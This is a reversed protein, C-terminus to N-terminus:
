RIRLEGYGISESDSNFQESNRMLQLIIHEVDRDQASNESLIVAVAASVAPAALSTGFSLTYGKPFGALSGILSDKTLPYYTMMMERADIQGTAMYQEGFSGTPSSISIISGYNSYDAKKGRKDTTAVTIVSPLGGPVHMNNNSFTDLNLSENGASAVVITQNRRAYEIARLFAITTFKEEQKTFNKYSGLSINIIDMDDNTADIIAKIVNLSEGDDAGMVKYSTMEVGPALTNIVGAVQTGHGLEDTQNDNVYNNQNVVNNVLKPHSFDIGSDIIGIKIGEGLRKKTPIRNSLIKKYAWNFNNFKDSLIDLIELNSNSVSDVNISEIKSNAIFDVEIEKKIDIKPLSHGKELDFYKSVVNYDKRGLNQFSVLNIEPIYTIQESDMEKSIEPIKWAEQNSIMYSLSSADEAFINTTHVFLASMVVICFLLTKKFNM